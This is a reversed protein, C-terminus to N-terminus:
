GLILKLVNLMYKLPLCYSYARFRKRLIQKLYFLFRVWLIGIHENQTQFSCMQSSVNKHLDASLSKLM